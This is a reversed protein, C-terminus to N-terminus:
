AVDKTVAPLVLRALLGGMSGRTLAFTGQYESAIERVISLGLGTGPKSEDLRRGRKLAERIQDPELGPGDDEVEVVIWGRRAPDEGAMDPPAIHARLAIKRRAHRAANELLNGVTEEIDQQEMALVLTEPEVDLSFVKDENLRRMVRALREFVPLTETRALVSERQAAIRARNLYSQVQSQMAEAQTKVLDGHPAELVRSENLLVAIPTKLSHALNGVQMRAREVIRRNSDILANVESALPLIEAPFDGDLQEAKGARIDELARRAADLPKLGILIAAANLSLSGVGFGVLAIFLSRSFDDIDNELVDRNGVVRFRATRGEEDLVVETEAVEVTNGVSDVTTYYREYRTDFPFAETSTIPVTATGLSTSTLPPTDFNEGIPEVMWYWGTEPQSFRLDGLQPNGSLTAGEDASVSNIVNYLQARLLDQFSAEASRRYLTSIVFAIVVLAVIAWLTALILVRFTLSRSRRASNAM